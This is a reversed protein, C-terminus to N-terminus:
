ACDVGVHDLNKLVKFFFRVRSGHSMSIGISESIRVKSQCTARSFGEM